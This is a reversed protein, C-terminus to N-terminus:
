NDLLLDSYSHNQINDPTIKFLDIYLNVIDHLQKMKTPNKTMAEIEIFDDLDRVEVINFKVNEIFYMERKKTVEILVGFVKRLMQELTIQDISKYLYFESSKIDKINDRKYYM